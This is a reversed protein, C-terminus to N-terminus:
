SMNSNTDGGRSSNHSKAESAQLRRLMPREWLTRGDDPAVHGAPGAEVKSKENSM